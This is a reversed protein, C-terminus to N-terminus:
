TPTNYKKKKKQKTIPVFKTCFIIGFSKHLSKKNLLENESKKILCNMKIKINEM